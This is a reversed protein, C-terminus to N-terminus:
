LGVIGMWDPILVSTILESGMPEYSCSFAKLFCQVINFDGRIANSEWLLAQCLFGCKKVSLFTDVNKCSLTCVSIYTCICYAHMLKLAAFVGRFSCRWSSIISDAWLFSWAVAHWQRSSSWYWVDFFIVRYSMMLMVKSVPTNTRESETWVAPGPSIYIRHVFYWVNIFHLLM